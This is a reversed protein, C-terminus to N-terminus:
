MFIIMWLNPDSKHQPKTTGTMENNKMRLNLFFSADIKFGRIFDKIPDRTPFTNLPNPNHLDFYYSYYYVITIHYVLALAISLIESM